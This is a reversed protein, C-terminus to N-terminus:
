HDIPPIESSEFKPKVWEDESIWGHRYMYDSLNATIERSTRKTDETIGHAVNGAGGAVAEIAITLPDTAIATIAGPEANSGGTTFFTLFPEGTFGNSLDYVRVRTELKTAGLGFGIAGRLFRSGQNVRVFEGRILWAHQPEFHDGRPAEVATILRRTLDTTIGTVMMARLDKKFDSLERGERDVNFEGHATGFPEVFIRDPMHRTSVETGPKISISACGTLAAALVVIGARRLNM